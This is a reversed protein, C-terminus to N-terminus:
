DKVLVSSTLGSINKKSSQMTPKRFHKVDQFLYPESFDDFASLITYVIERVEVFRAIYFSTYFATDMKGIVNNFVIM